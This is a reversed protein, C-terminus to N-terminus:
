LLHLLTPECQQVVALKSRVKLANIYHLKFAVKICNPYLKYIRHALIVSFNCCLLVPVKELDCRASDCQHSRAGNFVIRDQAVWADSIVSTHVSGLLKNRLILFINWPSLFNGKDPGLLCSLMVYCLYPSIFHSFAKLFFVCKM